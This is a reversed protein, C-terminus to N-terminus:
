LSRGSGANKRAEIYAEDMTPKEKRHFLRYIPGRSKWEAEREDFIRRAEKEIDIEVGKIDEALEDTKEKWTGETKKTQPTRYSEAIAMTTEKGVLASLAGIAPILSATPLQIALQPIQTISTVQVPLIANISQLSNTKVAANVFAEFVSPVFTSDYTAINNIAFEFAEFSWKSSGPLALGKLIDAKGAAVTTALNQNVGKLVNAIGDAKQQATLATNNTINNIKDCIDKSFIHGQSDYTGYFTGNSRLATTGLRGADSHQMAYETLGHTKSNELLAFERMKDVFQQPDSNYLACINKLQQISQNNAQIQLNAQNIYQNYNNIQQNLLNIEQRQAAITQDLTAIRQQAVALQEQLQKVYMVNYISAAIALTSLIDQWYTDQSYDVLEVFPKFEYAGVRTKHFWNKMKRSTQTGAIKVKEGYLFDKAALYGNGNRVNDAIQTYNYPKIADEDFSKSINRGGLSSNHRVRWNEIFSMAGGKNLDAAFAKQNELGIIDQCLEADLTDMEKHLAEQEAPTLNGEELQKLIETYRNFKSIISKYYEHIRANVVDLKSSFYIAIKNNLASMAVEPIVKSLETMRNATFNNALFEIEEPTLEDIRQLLGDITNRRKKNLNGIKACLKGIGRVVTSIICKVLKMPKDLISVGHSKPFNILKIDRNMYIFNDSKKYHISDDPPNGYLIKAILEELNYYKNDKKPPPPPPPPPPTVGKDQGFFSPETIPDFDYDKNPDVEEDRKKQKRKKKAEYTVWQNDRKIETIEYDEEKADPGFLKKIEDAINYSEGESYVPLIFTGKTPKRVPAPKINELPKIKKITIAKKFKEISKILEETDKLKGEYIDRNKEFDEDKANTSDKIIEELMNRQVNLDKLTKPNYILGRRKILGPRQASLDKYMVSLAQFKEDILKPDANEEKLKEWEKYLKNYQKLKENYAELDALFKDVEDKPREQYDEITATRINEMLEIRANKLATYYNLMHSAAKQYEEDSIEGKDYKEMLEWYDPLVEADYTLKADQYNDYARVLDDIQLESPKFVYKSLDVEVEPKGEKKAIENLEKLVEQTKDLLAQHWESFLSNKTARECVDDLNSLLVQLEQNKKDFENAEM